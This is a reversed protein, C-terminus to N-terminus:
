TVPARYSDESILRLEGGRGQRSVRVHRRTEDDVRLVELQAADLPVPAHVSASVAMGQVAFRFQVPVALGNRLRLDKYPWVVTADLGLPTFRDPETYLDRSHAHRESADLGARLGAEYAIGSLQCLGGGLDGVVEGGRISRGLEFGAAVSPRGILGWFSLTEGPGVVVGSLRAAGLRINALKGEFFESRKIEQRLELVLHGFEGAEGQRALRIRKGALASDRLGRRVVAVAIRLPGPSMSRIAARLSM